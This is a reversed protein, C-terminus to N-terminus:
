ARGSARNVAAIVAEAREGRRHAGGSGEPRGKPGDARSKRGEAVAVLVGRAVPSGALCVDLRLSFFGASLFSEGDEEKESVRRRRSPSEGKRGKQIKKRGPTPTTEATADVVCACVGVSM